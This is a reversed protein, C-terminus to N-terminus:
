DVTTSDTGANEFYATVTVLEDPDPTSPNFTIALGDEFPRIDAGAQSILMDGVLLDLAGDNDFDALAHDAWTRHSLELGSVWEANISSRSGTEGDHAYLTRGFTVLIEDFGTGDIDMPTPASVAIEDNPNGSTGEVIQNWDIMTNQTQENYDNCGVMGHWSFGDRYWTNWCIRDTIGNDDSDILAPPADAYGNAASFSFITSADVVELGVFTAGDSTGAEDIDTPITVVMEPAPDSDLQTIVPGPLRVHPSATDGDLNNLTNAYQVQGNAANVRWIWMEGNNEDITTLLVASSVEDIQVWAPDSPHTGDDLTVEWLPVPTGSTPLPLAVLNPEDNIDDVMALILEPSGDLFLDALLPQAVPRHCTTCTRDAAMEFTGHSWRWLRETEHSGGPKWGTVDCEIAPSWLEVTAQGNSDYVIIIELAGDDDVDFIIPTAKVELDIAGVDVQWMTQSSDGDVIRMFAHPNGSVDQQHVFVPSLSDRACSDLVLGGTDINASFNGVSVGLTEVGIDASSYHMWNLVPDTISLLEGSTPESPNHAPVSSEHGPTRGFQPWAIGGDIWVEGDRGSVGNPNTDASFALPSLSQGIMLLILATVVLPARTVIHAGSAM